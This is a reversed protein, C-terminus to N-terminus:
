SRVSFNLLAKIQLGKMIEQIMSSVYIIHVKIIERYELKEGGGSTHGNPTEQHLGLSKGQDWRLRRGTTGELPHPKM